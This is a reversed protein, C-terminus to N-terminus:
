TRQNFIFCRNKSVRYVCYKCDKFNIFYVELSSLITCQNKKLKEISDLSNEFLANLRSNFADEFSGVDIKSSKSLDMLSVQNTLFPLIDDKSAISKIEKLLDRRKRVIDDILELRSSVAKISPDSKLKISPLESSVLNINCFELMSIYSSELKSKLINDSNQASALKNSYVDVSEFLSKGIERSTKRNWKEGYQNRIESDSNEESYLISRTSELSDVCIQSKTFLLGINQNLAAPFGKSKIENSRDIVFQPCGSTNRIAELSSPLRMEALSELCKSEDYEIMLTLDRLRADMKSSYLSAAKHVGFPVLNKFLTPSVYGMKKLTELDPPPTATTMEAGTFVPLSDRYVIRDMYILDNDKTSSAILKTIKDQFKVFDEKLSQSVLDVSSVCKSLSENSINLWGLELGYKAANLAEKSKHYSAIAEFYNLKVFLYAM